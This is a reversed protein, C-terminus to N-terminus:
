FTSFILLVIPYIELRGTIMCLSLIIKSLGSFSNYNGASGVIGFGPGINGLTAIVASVSSLLDKNEISILLVSIIFILIYFSFFAAIGSLIEPEVANNNLRITKVVQPHMIKDIEQKLIRALLLVRLFKLGGATSGACAGTFMLITLIFKSLTPWLNFDASTFGTTTIVSSVQFFAYRFSMFFSKYIIGNLNLTILLVSILFICAYLRLEEDKFILRINKKYVLYYLNFNIGSLFMFVAIIFEIYFNQYAGVSLNKNSFGGTSITSFAHILADYLNMRCILLFFILLLTLLIYISYLIKAMQGIKPVFKGPYPGPTEASIIHIMSAKASPLMAIVLVLIGMGGIWNSFSRWFLIGKPLIEINLFVSAGTTSFSSASEFIANIFNSSRSFFFPLAGCLSILIWSLAVTIFGDKLYIKNTKIKISGLLIGSVGTILMAIIFGFIKEHYIIAVMIAPLMCMAQISLVFGINRFILKYNM